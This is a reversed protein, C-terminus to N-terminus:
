LNPFGLSSQNLAMEAQGGKGGHCGPLKRQSPAPSSPLKQPPATPKARHWPFSGLVGRGRGGSTQVWGVRPAQSAEVRQAGLQSLHGHLLFPRRGAPRMWRHFPGRATALGRRSLSRNLPPQNLVASPPQARPARDWLLPKRIQNKQLRSRTPLLCFGWRVGGKGTPPRATHAPCNPPVLPMYHSYGPFAARYARTPPVAALSSPRAACPRQASRILGPGSAGTLRAPPARGAGSDGHPGHGLAWVDGILLLPRCGLLGSSLDKGQRDGSHVSGGVVHTATEQPTIPTFM